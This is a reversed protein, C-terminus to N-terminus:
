ALSRIGLGSPQARHPDVGDAGILDEGVTGSANARTPAVSGGGPVGDISSCGSWHAARSPESFSPFGGKLESTRHEECDRDRRNHYGDADGRSSAPRLRGPTM